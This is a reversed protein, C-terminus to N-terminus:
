SREENFIHQVLRAYRAKVASMKDKYEAELIVGNAFELHLLSIEVQIGLVLSSMQVDADPSLEATVSITTNSTPDTRSLTVSSPLLHSKKEQLFNALDTM